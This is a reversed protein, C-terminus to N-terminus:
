QININSQFIRFTEPADLANFQSYLVGDSMEDHGSCAGNHTGTIGDIRQIELLQGADRRLQNTNVDVFEYVRCGNYRNGSSANVPTVILFVRNNIEILDPAQYHDDGTAEQADAPSLLRGVYEWSGSNTMSCPSNCRFYVIYETVPDTTADACFMALYVASSTAHLGPEAFICLNLDALDAGGVTQTLDSNLQIVPAGGTPSYVPSGTNSGDAQLGVGGFLKVTAASALGKPTSAMKMAIWSYDVFYSVLDANLYQFWILKWEEGAPASPDYILSSTESQWIGQSNAPIDATPHSETMPGVLSEVNQAVVGQDQWTVGGDSSSALRISVAWYTSAPYYASTEVSSYSMWLDGSVPDSAVSPDFIGLNGAGSFMIRAPLPSGKFLSSGGGGNCSSLIFLSAIFAVALYYRGSSM